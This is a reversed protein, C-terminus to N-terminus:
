KLSDWIQNLYDAIESQWAISVRKGNIKCAKTYIMDDCGGLELNDMENWFNVEFDEVRKEVENNVIKNNAYDEAMKYLWAPATLNLGLVERACSSGYIQGDIEFIKKHKKGCRTCKGEGLYVKYM